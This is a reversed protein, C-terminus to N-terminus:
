GRIPLLSLQGINKEFLPWVKRTTDLIERARLSRLRTGEEPVGQLSTKDGPKTLVPYGIAIPGNRGLAINDGPNPLPNYGVVELNEIQPLNELPERPAGIIPRPAKKFPTDLIPEFLTSALVYAIGTFPLLLVVCSMLKKV